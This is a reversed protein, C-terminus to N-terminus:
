KKKGSLAGFQGSMEEKRITRWVSWENNEAWEM